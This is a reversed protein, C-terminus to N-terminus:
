VLFSCNEGEVFSLAYSQSTRAGHISLLLCFTDTPNYYVYYSLSRLTTPHVEGHPPWTILTGLDLPIPTDHMDYSLHWIMPSVCCVLVLVLVCSTPDM